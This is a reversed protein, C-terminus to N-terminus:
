DFAKIKLKITKCETTNLKEKTLRDITDNEVLEHNFIGNLTFSKINVIKNYYLIYAFNCEHISLHYKHFTQSHDAFNYNRM